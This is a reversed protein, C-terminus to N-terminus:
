ELIFEDLTKYISKTNTLISEKIKISHITFYGFNKTKTEELLKWVQNNKKIRAITIHPIFSHEQKVDNLKLAITNYLELLTENGDKITAIIVGVNNGRRFSDIGNVEAKFKKFKIKSLKNKIDLLQKESIEGIYMLTLHLNDKNVLKIGEDNISKQFTIIKSTINDPIDIAIFTRM